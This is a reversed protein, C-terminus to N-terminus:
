RGGAQEQEVTFGRTVGVHRLRKVRERDWAPPLILRRLESPADSAEPIVLTYRRGVRLVRLSLPLVSAALQRASHDGLYLERLQTTVSLSDAKFPQDFRGTLRLVRLSSPLVDTLPQNFSGGISLVELQPPLVPLSHDFLSHIDLEILSMPLAVRSLPLTWEHVELRLLKSPLVDVGIPWRTDFGHTLHLSTLSEPLVGAPLPTNKIAGLSLSTLRPPLTNPQLTFHPSANLRLSRLSDPLRHKRGLQEDKDGFTICTLSLDTLHQLYPLLRLDWLGGDLQTVRPM